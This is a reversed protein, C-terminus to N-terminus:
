ISLCMKKETYNTLLCAQASTICVSTTVSYVSLKWCGVCVRYHVHPIIGNRPPWLEYSDYHCSTFWTVFSQTYFLIMNMQKLLLHFPHIFPKSLYEGLVHFMSPYCFEHTNVPIVVIVSQQQSHVIHKAQSSDFACQTLWVTPSVRWYSTCRLHDNKQCYTNIM